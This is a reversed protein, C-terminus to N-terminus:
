RLFDLAQAIRRMITHYGNRIIAIIEMTAEYEERLKRLTPALSIRYILYAALALVVGTISLSITLSGLVRALWVVFSTLLLLASALSVVAVLLTTVVINSSTRRM